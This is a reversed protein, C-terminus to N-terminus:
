VEGEVSEGSGGPRLLVLATGYLGLATPGLYLSYLWPERGDFFLARLESRLPLEEPFLPMLLM